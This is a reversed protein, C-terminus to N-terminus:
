APERILGRRLLGAIQRDNLGALDRLVARTDQGLEPGTSRLRAPTGAFKPVIGAMPGLPGDPGDPRLVMDRALYHVDSIM